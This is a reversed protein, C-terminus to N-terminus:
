GWLISYSAALNENSYPLIELPIGFNVECIVCKREKQLEHIKLHKQLHIKQNFSNGCEGCKFTKTRRQSTGKRWYSSPHLHEVLIHHEVDQKEKFRRDCKQCFHSLGGDHDSIKHDLLTKEFFCAFDCIECFFKKVGLASNRFSESDDKLVLSQDQCEIHKVPSFSRKIEPSSCNNESKMEVVQFM